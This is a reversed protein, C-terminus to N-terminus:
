KIISLKDKKISKGDVFIECIYMGTPVSQADISVAKAGMALNYRRILKGALDYLVLEGSQNEALNCELTLNGQTPNPFLRMANFMLVRKDESEEEPEISADCSDVFEIVNNALVMLLNRSQYVAEGGIIACQSAISNLTEYDSETYAGVSDMRVLYIENFAKQNEEIINAPNVSNNDTIAQSYDFNEISTNVNGFVAFASNTNTTYFANLLSDERLGEHLELENYIFQQMSWDTPIFTESNVHGLLAKLEEAYAVESADMSKLGDNKAMIGAPVYTTPCTIPSGSTITKLGTGSQYFAMFVNSVNATPLYTSTNTCWLISATNANSTSYTYTQGHPFTHSPNWSNSNPFSTSGQTGIVGSTRLMYGTRANDMSNGLIGLTTSGYSSNTTSTCTGEYVMCQGLSYLTNCFVKNNPSSKVWIGRMDWNDGTAYTGRNSYVTNNKVETNDCSEIFIGATTGSSNYRIEVADNNYVILNNKIHSARIGYDVDSTTNNRIYLTVYSTITNGTIDTLYIATNTYGSSNAALNNGNVDIYPNLVGGSAVNRSMYFGSMWNLVSPCDKIEIVEKTNKLFVACNAISSAGPIAPTGTCEMRNEVVHAEYYNNLEIGRFCDYFYNEEATGSGGSVLVNYPEVTQIPAFIGVGTANIPPDGHGAILQAGAMNQFRSNKVEVRSNTIFVGYDLYDFFNMDGTGGAAAGVKAYYTSSTIDLFQVGTKSRAGLLTTTPTYSSMSSTTNTAFDSKITAFSSAFTGTTPNPLVRCTVITNKIVNGSMDDANPRVLIAITNKNFIAQNITYNPISGTGSEARVAIEADYIRSANIINLTGGAKVEIGGWMGGCTCAHLWAGDITLTAGSNVIIKKATFITMNPSTITLTAPSNVTIDGNVSVTSASLTTSSSYTIGAMPIVVSGVCVDSSNTVTVQDTAVCSGYTVTLLYTYTGAETCIIETYQSSPHLITSNDSTFSGVATWAYTAGTIQPCDNTGIYNDETCDYSTIDHGANAMQWLRLEDIFFYAMSHIGNTGTSTYFGPESSTVGAFGSPSYTNIAIVDVDSRTTSVCGSYKNWSTGPTNTVNSGSTFCPTATPYLPPIPTGFAYQSVAPYVALQSTLNSIDALSSYFEMYYITNATLPSGLYKELKEDNTWTVYSFPPIDDQPDTTTMTAHQIGAYNHGGGQAAQGSGGGSTYINYPVGVDGTSSWTYDDCDSFLSPTNTYPIVPLWYYSAWDCAAQVEHPDQPCYLVGPSLYELEEFSHNVIMNCEPPGETCTGLHKLNDARYIENQCYFRTSGHYGKLVTSGTNYIKIDNQSLLSMGGHSHANVTISGAAMVIGYLGNFSHIKVTGGVNWFVRSSRTSDMGNYIASDILLNGSINFIYVASSDGNFEMAGNLTANGTISYVGASLSQGALTGSISTGGQGSCASKASALDSLATTVTANGVYKNNAKVYNSINNTAGANGLVLSTDTSLITDASLLGFTKATALNPPTQANLNSFLFAAIM